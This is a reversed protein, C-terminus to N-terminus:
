NGGEIHTVLKVGICFLPLIITEYVNLKMNKSLSRSYFSEAGFLLLCGRVFYIRFLFFVWIVVSFYKVKFNLVLIFLLRKRQHNCLQPVCVSSIRKGGKVEGNTCIASLSLTTLVCVVYSM